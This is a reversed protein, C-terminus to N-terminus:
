EGYRALNRRDVKGRFRYKLCSGGGPRASEQRYGGKESIVAAVV